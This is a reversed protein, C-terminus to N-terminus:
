KKNKSTPLCHVRERPNASVRTGAEDYDSITQRSWRSLTAVRLTLPVGKWCQIVRRLTFSYVKDQLAYVVCFQTLRGYLSLSGEYDIIIVDFINLRM